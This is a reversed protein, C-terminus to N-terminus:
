AASRAETKAKERDLPHKRMWDVVYDMTDARPCRGNRVRTVFSRDRMVAEGFDAASLKHRAMYAHIKALFKERTSMNPLM